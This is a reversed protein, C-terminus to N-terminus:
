VTKGGRGAPARGALEASALGLHLHLHICPGRKEQHSSLMKNSKQCAAQRTRHLQICDTLRRAHHRSWFAKWVQDLWTPRRVSRAGRGSIARRSASPDACSRGHHAHDAFCEEAYRIHLTPPTNDFLPTTDLCGPPAPCGIGGAPKSVELNQLRCVTGLSLRKSTGDASQRSNSQGHNNCTQESQLSRSVSM